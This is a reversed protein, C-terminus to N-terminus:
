AQQTPLIVVQRLNVAPPRSVIFEVLDAIDDATIAVITGFMSTLEGRLRNNDIHMGLETDTLGPEVNTVRVGERSLETRQMASFATVAAKTAAYVAYDAFVVHAAISSINVIDAVGRDHARLDPLLASTMRLLGTLNTDVMRQWEDARGAALPNPLMVGAANVLLDPSGLEDHILSIAAEVDGDSTVDAPIPVI